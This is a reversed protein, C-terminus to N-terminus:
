DMKDMLRKFTDQLMKSMTEQAVHADRIRQQSEKNLQNLEEGRIESKRLSEELKLRDLHCTAQDERLVQMEDRMQKNHLENQKSVRDNNKANQKWMLFIVLSAFALALIAVTIEGGLEGGLLRVERIVEKTEKLM